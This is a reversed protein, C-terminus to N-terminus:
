GDAESSCIGRHLDSESASCRYDSSRSSTAPPLSIIETPLASNRLKPKSLDLELWALACTSPWWTAHAFSNSSMNACNKLHNIGDDLMHPKM